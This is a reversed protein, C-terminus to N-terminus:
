AQGNAGAGNTAGAGEGAEKVFEVLWDRLREVSAVSVANYNSVRIGGVSRHGKLGLLGRAEAGTLFRKELSDDGAGNPGGIRFCLNMRSRAARAPCVRFLHPHADLVDYILAAKHASEAAQRGTALPGHTALLRALVREAIYLSFIPLTNYLSNNKALTPFHLM